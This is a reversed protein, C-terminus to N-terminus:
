TPTVRLSGKWFSSCRSTSSSAVGNGRNRWKVYRINSLKLCPLMLYWKKLRQYTEVQFQVGSERAIPSLRILLTNALPGHLSRPYLPAIWPFSYRGRYRPTTAISFPAKPDGEVVTALKFFYLLYLQRGYDFAVLLSGKWYSSCGPTPSPAVGKEPNSWKLRNLLSTDLVM